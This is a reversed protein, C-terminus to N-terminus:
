HLAIPQRNLICGDTLYPTVSDMVQYSKTKKTLGFDGRDFRKVLKLMTDTIIVGHVVRNDRRDASKANHFVVTMLLDETEAQPLSRIYHVAQMAHLDRVTFPKLDFEQLRGPAYDFGNCKCENRPRVFLSLFTNAILNGHIIGQCQKDFTKCGSDIAARNPTAWQLAKVDCQDISRAYGARLIDALAASRNEETKYRWIHLHNSNSIVALGPQLYDM